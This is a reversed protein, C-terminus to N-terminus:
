EDTKTWVKGNDSCDKTLQAVTMGLVPHEFDPAIASLPALVFNRLHMRPHPVTLRPTTLVLDDFFVIDIDITRAEYHTTTKQTRGLIKEIEQLVDLLQFATYDTKILIAQNCYSKDKYGWSESFFLPSQTVIKCKTQSILSIAEAINKEKDGLNSGLLLFSKHTLQKTM